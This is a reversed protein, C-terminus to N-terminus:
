PFVMLVCIAVDMLVYQCLTLKKWTEMKMPRGNMNVAGTFVFIMSKYFPENSDGTGVIQSLSIALNRFGDGRGEFAQNYNIMVIVAKSFVLTKKLVDFQVHWTLTTDTADTKEIEPLHAIIFLYLKEHHRSPSWFPCFWVPASNPGCKTSKVGTRMSVPRIRLCSGSDKCSSAPYTTFSHFNSLM